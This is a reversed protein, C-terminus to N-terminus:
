RRYVGGELLYIRRSDQKQENALAKLDEKTQSIDKTIRDVKEVVVASKVELSNVAKTNSDLAGHFQLIFWGVVSLAAPTILRLVAIAIDGKKM